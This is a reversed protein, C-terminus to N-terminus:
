VLWANLWRGAEGDVHLQHSTGICCIEKDVFRILPADNAALCPLKNKFLEIAASASQSDVGLTDTPDRQLWPSASAAPSFIESHASYPSQTEM